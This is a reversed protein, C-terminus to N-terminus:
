IVLSRSKIGPPSSLENQGTRRESRNLPRGLRRDLQYRASKEWPYLPRRMSTVVEDIALTLFAHLQVEAGGYTKMIHRKILRLVLEGEGEGQVVRQTPGSVQSRDSCFILLNIQVLAKHPTTSLGDKVTLHQAHPCVFYKFIHSIVTKWSDTTQTV